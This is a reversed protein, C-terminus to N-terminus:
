FSAKKFTMESWEEETYTMLIACLIDQIILICDYDCSVEIAMAVNLLLFFLGEKEEESYCPNSKMYTSLVKLVLKLNEIPFQFESQPQATFLDFKRGAFPTPYVLEREIPWLCGQVTGYNILIALIDPIQPSFPMLSNDAQSILIDYCTEAIDLNDHVSMLYLLFRCCATSV